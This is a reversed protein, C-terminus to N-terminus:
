QIQLFEEFHLKVYQFYLKSRQSLQVVFLSAPKFRFMM